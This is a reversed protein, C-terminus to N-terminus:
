VTTSKADQAPKEPAPIMLRSIFRAVPNIILTRRCLIIIVMLLVYAAAVIIFAWMPDMVRALALGGAFSFFVLATTAAITLIAAIAIKSILRTLKEALSLRTDEILLRLYVSLTQTLSGAKPSNHEQDSM